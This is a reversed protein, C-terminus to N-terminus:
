PAKSQFAPNELIVCNESTWVRPWKDAEFSELTETVFPRDLGWREDIDGIVLYRVRDKTLPFRFRERSTGYEHMFTKHGAYATLQLLSGNSADLMWGLNSNAIVVDDPETHSNLWRAASEYDPISQTVWFHHRTVLQAQLVSLLSPLVLFLAAVMPVWRIVKKRFRRAVWDSASGVLLSIGIAILPALIIAQYYFITLNSRNSLLFYSLILFASILPWLKRRWKPLLILLLGLAGYLHYTDQLFFRYFNLFLGDSQDTYVGYSRFIISADELIWNGFRLYVPVYLLLFLIAPAIGILLWSRPKNWRPLASSIAAFIGLPHAGVALLNGLGTLCNNRISSQCCAALLGIALGAAVANHAYAARFHLVNQYAGLFILAAAWAMRQGMLRRGQLFISLASALALLVNVLRAGLIDGGFCFMGIALLWEYVPQYVITFFTNWQAGTAFEGKLLHGAIDVAITEDGYWSPATRLHPLYLLAWVILIVICPIKRSQARLSHFSSTQNMGIVL